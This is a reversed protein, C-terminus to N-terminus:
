NGGILKKFDNKEFEKLNFLFDIREYAEKIQNKTNKWGLGDTIWIFKVNKFKNIKESLYIYSKCTENLKSGSSGYFNVEMLYYFGEFEIAFDLIKDAVKDDFVELFEKFVDESFVKALNKLRVQTHFKVNKKDLIEKCKAEMLSGVRNKRANTDMGVELGILYDIISKVKNEQFFRIIGSRDIIRIVEDISTNESIKIEENITQIISKRIAILNPILTKISPNQKFILELRKTPEPDNLVTNLIELEEYRKNVNSVVKKYDVYDEVDMITPKLNKFFLEFNKIM